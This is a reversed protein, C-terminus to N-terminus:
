ADRSGISSSQSSVEEFLVRWGLRVTSVVPWLRFPQSSIQFTVFLM